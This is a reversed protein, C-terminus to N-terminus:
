VWHTRDGAHGAGDDLRWSRRAGVVFAFEGFVNPRQGAVVGDETAAIGFVAVMSPSSVIQRAAVGEETIAVTWPLEEATQAQGAGESAPLRFSQVALHSFFAMSVLFPILIMFLNMVPTVDIEVLGDAAMADLAPTQVFSHGNYGVDGWGQDDSVILVINPLPSAQTM